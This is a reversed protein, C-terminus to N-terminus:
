PLSKYFCDKYPVLKIFVKIVKLRLDESKEPFPTENVRNILSPLLQEYITKGDAGVRTILIDVIDLGIQRNNEILDSAIKTLM